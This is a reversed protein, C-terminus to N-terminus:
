EIEESTITFNWAQTCTIEPIKTLKISLVKNLYMTIAQKVDDQDLHVYTVKKIIM